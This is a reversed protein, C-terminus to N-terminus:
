RGGIVSRRRAIGLRKSLYLLLRPLIGRPRDKRSPIPTPPPAAPEARAKGYAAAFKEDYRHRAFGPGNYGRAFAQWDRRRLADDLGSKAIFRCMLRLQGHLGARAEAVLDEVSGYGLWSWHAGMVQGIGWSVSELAAARDIRTARRLLLWRQAQSAPNRVAGATPSALGARRARQLRAGSLRRDFYHGEFRILPEQRGDVLAFVRGGSEVEVVAALAAPEVRLRGAEEAIAERMEQADM